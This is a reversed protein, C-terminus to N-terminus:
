TECCLTSDGHRNAFTAADNHGHKKYNCNTSNHNASISGGHSWCCTRTGDPYKLDVNLRQGGGGRGSGGNNREGAARPANKQRNNASLTRVKNQLETITSLLSTVQETTALNSHALNEMHAQNTINTTRLDKTIIAQEAFHSQFGASESTEEHQLDLHAVKFDTVFNTWTQYQATHQRWDRCAYKMKGSQFALNYAMRFIQTDM